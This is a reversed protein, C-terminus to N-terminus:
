ARSEGILDQWLSSLDGRVRVRVRPDGLTVPFMAMQYLAYSKRNLKLLFYVDIKYRKRTIPRKEDFTVFKLGGWRCREFKAM